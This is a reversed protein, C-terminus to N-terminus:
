PLLSCTFFSLSISQIFVKINTLPQSSHHHYTNTITISTASTTTNANSVEETLPAENMKSNYNVDAVAQQAPLVGARSLFM